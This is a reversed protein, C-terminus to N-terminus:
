TAEALKCYQQMCRHMFSSARECSAPLFVSSTGSYISFRAEWKQKKDYEQQETKSPRAVSRANLWDSISGDTWRLQVENRRMRRTCIKGVKGDVKATNIKAEGLLIAPDAAVIEEFYPGLIKAVSGVPNSKFFRM